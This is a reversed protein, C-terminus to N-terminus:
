RKKKGKPGRGPLRRNLFKHFRTKHPLRLLNLQPQPSYNPLTAIEIESGISGAMGLEELSFRTQDLKKQAQIAHHIAAGFLFAVLIVTVIVITQQSFRTIAMLPPVVALTIAMAAVPATRLNKQFASERRLSEHPHLKPPDHLAPLEKRAKQWENMPLLLPNQAPEDDIPWHEVLPKIHVIIPGSQVAKVFTEREIPRLLILEPALLIDFAEFTPDFRDRARPKDISGERWTFEPAVEHSKSSALRWRSRPGRFVLLDDERRLWGHEASYPRQQLSYVVEVEIWSEDPQRTRPHFLNPLAKSQRFLYRGAVIAQLFTGMAQGLTWCRLAACVPASFFTLLVHSLWPQIAFWGGTTEQRQPLPDHDFLDLVPDEQLPQSIVRGSM